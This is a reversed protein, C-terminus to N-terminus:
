AVSEAALARAAEFRSFYAYFTLFALTYVAGALYYPMTWNGAAMLPGAIWAGVGMPFESFAHMIGNTTGREREKVVEMSFLGYIPDTLSKNPFAGGILVITLVYAVGATLVGPALGILVLFPVGLCKLFVVTRVRGLRRVVVPALLTAFATVISGAGFIVGIAATSAHLERAFFVAFFPATM